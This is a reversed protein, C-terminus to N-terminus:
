ETFRITSLIGKFIEEEKEPLIIGPIKKREAISEPGVIETFIGFPRRVTFVRDDGLPFYYTFTGCGGVGSTVQYGNLTGATFNDTFGPDIQLVSDDKLYNSAIFDSGEIKALADKLTGSIVEFGFQVDNITDYLPADDREDCPLRREPWPVTHYLAVRNMDTQDLIIERPYRFEFGLEDNRYGHWSPPISSRTQQRKPYWVIALLLMLIITGIIIGAKKTRNYSTAMILIRQQSQDRRFKRFGIYFLVIGTIGLAVASSVLIYSHWVWCPDKYNTCIFVIDLLQLLATILAALHVIAAVRLTKNPATDHLGLKIYDRAILLLIIPLILYGTIGWFTGLLTGFGGERESGLLGYFLGMPMLFVLFLLSSIGLFWGTIIFLM